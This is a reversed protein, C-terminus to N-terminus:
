AQRVVEAIDIVSWEETEMDFSWVRDLGIAAVEPMGKEVVDTLDASILGFTEQSALIDPAPGGSDAPHTTGGTVHASSLLLGDVRSEGSGMLYRFLPFNTTLASKKSISLNGSV